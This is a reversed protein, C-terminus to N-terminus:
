LAFAVSLSISSLNRGFNNSSWISLKWSGCCVGMQQKHLQVAESWELHRGRDMASLLLLSCMFVVILGCLLPLWTHPPLPLDKNRLVTPGTRWTKSWSTGGVWASNCVEIWTPPPPTAAPYHARCYLLFRIWPHNPFCLQSPRWFWLIESWELMQPRHQVFLTCIIAGGGRVMCSLPSLGEALM